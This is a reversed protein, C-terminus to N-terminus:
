SPSPRPPSRKKITPWADLLSVAEPFRAELLSRLQGTYAGYFERLEHRDMLSLTDEERLHNPSGLLATSGDGEEAAAVMPVVAGDPGTDAGLFALIRKIEGQRDAAYKELSTVYYSAKPFNQLWRALQDAYIGKDVHMHGLSASRLKPGFCHRLRGYYNGQTGKLGGEKGNVEAMCQDFRQRWAMESEAERMFQEVSGIDGQQDEARRGEFLHSNAFWYSSVAREIPDRLTIVFKLQSGGDGGHPYFDRMDYPVTPAYLYHPTYHVVSVKSDTVVPSSAWEDALELYHNSWAYTNRDFRHIERHTDTPNVRRSVLKVRSQMSLDNLISTSGCKSGGIFFVNPLCQLSTADVQRCRGSEDSAAIPSTMTHFVKVFDAMTKIRHVSIVYIYVVLVKVFFAAVTLAVLQPTCFAGSRIQNVVSRVHRKIPSQVNGKMSEGIM